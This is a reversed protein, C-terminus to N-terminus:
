GQTVKGTSEEGGGYKQALYSSLITEHEDLLVKMFRERTGDWKQKPVGMVEMAKNWAEQNMSKTGAIFNVAQVKWGKCMVIKTIIQVLGAYQETAREDCRQVYGHERDSTRKFEFTYIVKKTRNVAVGDFRRDGLTQQWCRKCELADTGKEEKGKCQCCVRGEEEDDDSRWCQEACKDSAGSMRKLRGAAEDEDKEDANEVGQPTRGGTGGERSRKKSERQRPQEGEHAAWAAEALEKWSCIDKIMEHEWITQMSSEHEVTIVEVEEVLRQIERQILRNCRNHAATVVEAQGKCYASQIHGMSEVELRGPRSGAERKRACLECGKGQGRGIKNLWHGCPFTGTLVQLLRRRKKWSISRCKLWKHICERSEGQRTMFDVTWSDTAPSQQQKKQKKRSQEQRGDDTCKVNWEELSLDFWGKRVMQVAEERPQRGCMDPGLWNDESWRRGGEAMHRRYELWAGQKRMAIRVGAGWASRRQVGGAAQWRFIIRESRDTWEKHEAEVLRGLDACDDAEENLPEGRHAKVKLLVTVAGTEVRQRLMEIIPRLLDENAVGAMTARSGEGLWKGIETIESKCDLLVAVDSEIQVKRLLMLLAALEARYSSTGEEERGVRAWGRVRDDVPTFVKDQVRIYDGYAVGMLELREKLRESPSYGETIDRAMEDLFIERGKLKEDADAMRWQDGPMRWNLTCFGAGMRGDSDSGDAAAVVGRFGLVGLQGPETGLWYQAERENLKIQCEDKAAICENFFKQAVLKM